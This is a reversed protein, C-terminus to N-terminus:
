FFPYGGKFEHLKFLVRLAGTLDCFIYDYRMGFESPAITLRLCWVSGVPAGVRKLSNPQWSARATVGSRASRLASTATGFSSRITPNPTRHQNTSTPVCPPILTPRECITPIRMGDAFM